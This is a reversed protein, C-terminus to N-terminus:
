TGLSAQVAPGPHPRPARLTVPSLLPGPLLHHCTSPLTHPFGLPELTIAHPDAFSSPHPSGWPAVGARAPREPTACRRCGPLGALIEPPNPGTAPPIIMPVSSKTRFPSETITEWNTLSSRPCAVSRQPTRAGPEQLRAYFACCMAEPSGRLGNAPSDSRAQPVSLTGAPPPSQLKPTIM